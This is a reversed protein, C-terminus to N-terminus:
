DPFYTPYYRIPTKEHYVQFCKFESVGTAELADLFVSLDCDEELYATQGKRYSYPSIKHGIGLDNLRKMKVALWGHGPDSYFTADALARNDVSILKM